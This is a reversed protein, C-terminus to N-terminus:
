IRVGQLEGAHGALEADTASKAPPAVAAAIADFLEGTQFPKTVYGDMSAELCRERDGTLAHATMAVIPVHRGTERESDRIRATAQFGDMVPMQVDMLVLDFMERHLADIADQGNGAVVVTHGAKQLMRVALLQNVPNDEAVLIRLSRFGPDVPPAAPLAGQHPPPTKEGACHSATEAATPLSPSGAVLLGHRGFRATFHFTSGLGSESEVWIRGGMLQVLRASITLGLGTGGYHRTTSSDAQTFAEFILQQKEAPIGIGSDRVSVHLSGAAETSAALEVLIAIEGRSTFKIANGVLNVLIQRFRAPDGVLVEPIDPRIEYHLELDKAQADFAFSKLTNGITEGLNFEISDMELRGAEIKSFDLVDNVVILLAEASLKVGELYQRQEATLDTGLTLDTLGLIGNMPTRIEHSMNALFESKARNAAEAAVRATVAADQAQKLSTIDTRLSVIGGDSTRRDSIRIWQGSLWQEAPLGPSRHAELRAGVWEEESLGTHSADGAQFFARLLDEYPAGQIMLHAVDAYIERYKANCVVMREDPGFMVLGADLSDIADMLQARTRFLAEEARGREALLGDRECEIRKREVASRLSRALLQGNVQSKVLYDQAGEHVAKVALEEDDFGSLVVIPLTAAHAKLSLFTQLGQSDPLGLDSLVLDYEQRKLIGVAEALRGVRALVFEDRAELTLMSQFLRADAPDDEVLLVRIPKETM